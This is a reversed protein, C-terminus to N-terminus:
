NEQSRTNHKQYTNLFSLIHVAILVSDASNFQDCYFFLYFSILFVRMLWPSNSTKMFASAKIWREGKQNISLNNPCSATHLSKACRSVLLERPVGKSASHESVFNSQRCICSSELLNPVTPKSTPKRQGDERRSSIGGHQGALDLTDNKNNSM